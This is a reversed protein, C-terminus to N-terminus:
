PSTKMTLSSSGVANRRDMQGCNCSDTRRIVADHESDEYERTDGAIAPAALLASCLAATFVGFHGRRPRM